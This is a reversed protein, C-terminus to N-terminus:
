IIKMNKAEVYITKGLDAKCYPCEHRKSKMSDMVLPVWMLPWFVLGMGVTAAIAKGGHKKIIQTVVNQKCNPCTINVPTGKYKKMSIEEVVAGQPNVLVPAPTPNNQPPVPPTNGPVGYPGGVSSSTQMAPMGNVLMSTSTVTKSSQYDASTYQNTSPFQVNGPYAQSYQPPNPTANQQQSTNEYGTGYDSLINSNLRNNNNQENFPNTSSGQNQNNYTPNSGFAEREKENM